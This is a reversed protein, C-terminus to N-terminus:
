RINNTSFSTRGAPMLSYTLHIRMVEPNRIHIASHDRNETEFCRWAWLKEPLHCHKSTKLGFVVVLSHRNLAAVLNQHWVQYKFDATKEFILQNQCFKFYKVYCTHCMFWTVISSRFENSTNEFWILQNKERWHVLLYKLYGFSMNVPQLQVDSHLLGLHLFCCIMIMIKYEVLRIESYM